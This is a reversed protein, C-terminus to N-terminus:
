AWHGRRGSIDLMALRQWMNPWYWTDRWTYEKTPPGTGLLDLPHQGTSVTAREMVAVARLEKLGEELEEMLVGM